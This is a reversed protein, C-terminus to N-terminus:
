LAQFATAPMSLFDVNKRSKSKFLCGTIEISPLRPGIAKAEDVVPVGDQGSKAFGRQARGQARM